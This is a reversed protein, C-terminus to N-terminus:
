VIRRMIWVGLVFPFAREEHMTWIGKLFIKGQSFFAWLPHRPQVSQKHHATLSGAREIHSLLLFPSLGNVHNFTPNSPVSTGTTVPLAGLHRTPPHTPPNHTFSLSTLISPLPVKFINVLFFLSSIFVGDMEFFLRAPLGPGCVLTEDTLLVDNRIEEQWEFQEAGQWSGDTKDQRGTSLFMVASYAVKSLLSSIPLHCVYNVTVGSPIHTLNFCEHVLMGIIVLWSNTLFQLRDSIILPQLMNQDSKSNKCAM